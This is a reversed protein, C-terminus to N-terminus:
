TKRWLYFALSIMVIKWASWILWAYNPEFIVLALGRDVISVTIILLPAWKLKRFLGFSAVAYVAAYTLLLASAIMLAGDKGAFSAILSGNLSLERLSPDGLLWAASLIDGGINLLTLVLLIITIPKVHLLKSAKVSM